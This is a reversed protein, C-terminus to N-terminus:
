LAPCLFIFCLLVLFYKAWAFDNHTQSYIRQTVRAIPHIATIFFPYWHNTVVEGESYLWYRLLKQFCCCPWISEVEGKLLCTRCLNLVLCPTRPFEAPKTRRCLQCVSKLQM